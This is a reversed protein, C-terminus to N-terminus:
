VAALPSNIQTDSVAPIRVFEFWTHRQLDAANSKIVVLTEGPV